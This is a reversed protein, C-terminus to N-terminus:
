DRASRLPLAQENDNYQLFDEYLWHPFSDNIRKVKEGFRQHASAAGGCGSDNSVVMAFREDVAGAWLATKGLRSHGVVAVRNGAVQTDTVLYDLACSLGWAWTAISGWDSKRRSQSAPVTTFHTFEM